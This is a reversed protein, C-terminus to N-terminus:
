DKLFFDPNGVYVWAKTMRRGIYISEQQRYYLQPNEFLGEYDDLIQLDKDTLQEWLIGEVEWNRDPLIYPYGYPSPFKKYGKLLSKIPESPIRLLFDKIIEAKMLTGYTFLRHNM